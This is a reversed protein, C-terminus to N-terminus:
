PIMVKNPLGTAHFTGWPAVYDYASGPQNNVYAYCNTNAYAIRDADTTTVSWMIAKGHTVTSQAAWQTSCAYPTWYSLESSDHHEVYGGDALANGSQNMDPYGGGSSALSGAGWTGNVIFILGHRDAVKRFTQTLAIAGNRYAQQDTASWTSWDINPFWSRSGIDDAFWGAMHPNESVMKELVCELKGQEVGGVRFDNLYGWQNAMPVGPWRPVAAGCVSANMLMDHYRGYSTDIITDLYILVTGGGASVDKFVQDAYNTRGAAVLGGPHAYNAAGANIPDGTEAYMVSAAQAPLNTITTPTPTPTASSTQGWHSLLISLDFVNVTGDTNLDASATTTNWKSLLMSLDFVNVTGDTNIDGALTAAHSFTVILAGSLAVVFMVLLAHIRNIHSIKV